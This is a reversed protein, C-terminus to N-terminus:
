PDTTLSRDTDDLEGFRINKERFYRIKCDGEATSLGGETESPSEGLGDDVRTQLSLAREVGMM